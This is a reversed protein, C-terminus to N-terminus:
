SPKISLLEEAHKLANDTQEGGIMRTIEFKREGESLTKVDVRTKGGHVSKEVVKQHQSKAAIQPLHTIAIVQHYKALDLMCLAIKDATKGGVGTDIEDFILLPLTDKQALVSKISLMVRSIEGGSACESLPEAPQGPNASFVIECADIGTSGYQHPTLANGTLPEWRIELKAHPLELKTLLSNVEKCFEAAIKKRKASLNQALKFYNEFSKQNLEQHSDLLGSFNEIQEIELKRKDRLEILGATDTRYKARLRQYLAIRSNLEDVDAVEKQPLEVKSVAHEIDTLLEKIQLCKESFDPLSKLHSQLNQLLRSLAQTQEPLSHPGSLLTEIAQLTQNIKQGDVAWHIQEELSDEEELTLKAKSLEQYQFALFDKKEENSSHSLQLQQLAKYAEQWHRFADKVQHTLGELEGFQDLTQLQFSRSLLKQQQHQGHIDFLFSSAKQMIATSVLTGNIRGRSKGDKKLTREIIIELDEHPLENEKLFQEWEPNQPSEFVAEVKLEESFNGMIKSTIKEGTLLKLSNVLISKGAGTEGTLATFGPNWQICQKEILLLNHITLQTIM